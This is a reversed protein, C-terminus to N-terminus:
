QSQNILFDLSIQNPENLTSIPASSRLLHCSYLGREKKLKHILLFNKFDFVYKVTLMLILFMQVLKNKLFNPVLVTQMVIPAFSLLNRVGM